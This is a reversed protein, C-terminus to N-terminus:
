SRSGPAAATTRSRLRAALAAVGAASVPALLGLGPRAGVAGTLLSAAAAAVLGGVLAAACVQRAVSARPLLWWAALGPLGAGLALLFPWGAASPSVGGARVPWALWLPAYRAALVVAASVAWSTALRLARRRGGRAAEAGALVAVLLAVELTAAPAAAQALLLYAFAGANDRAGELHALRRVLHALLLLELTQPLAHEYLASGAGLALIPLVPLTAQGVLAPVTGLGSSRVLAYGLLLASAAAVAAALSVAREDGLARAAPWAALHFVTGSRDPDPLRYPEARLTALARASERGARTPPGATVALAVALPLALAAPRIADPWTRRLRWFAALVLLVAALAPLVAV